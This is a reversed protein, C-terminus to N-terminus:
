RSISACSTSASTLSDGGRQPWSYPSFELVLELNPDRSCAEQWEAVKPKWAPNPTARVESAPMSPLWLVVLLAAIGGMALDRTRAVFVSDIALIGAALWLVIPVVFYRNSVYGSISPIAGYGVGLLLLFGIGNHRGTRPKWALYLGLTGILLVVIAGLLPSRTLTGMGFAETGESVNLGPLLTAIAQPTADLWNTFTESNIEVARGQEATFTTLLQLVFGVLLSLSLTVAARTSIRKHLRYVGIPILLLVASPITTSVLFLGISYLGVPFNRSPFSVAITAAVLLPMYSSAYVNIGEAGVLPVAVVLLSVIFSTVVSIEARRLVVFIIAACMGALLAASANAVTAWESIPWLSVFGAILRPVVLLYGAFPDVLCQFVDAKRVCLPFLGDEAWLNENLALGDTAQLRLMSIAAALGGTGLGGLALSGSTRNV